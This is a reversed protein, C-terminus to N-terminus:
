GNRISKISYINNLLLDDSDIIIIYEGKSELIGQNRSYFAKKNVDNKLYIIRKDKEILDKIILSTNDTSADDVFIIEIDKLEQKYISAYIFKINEEQNYVSIIVSVKPIERKILDNKNDFSIEIQNFEKIEEKVKDVDLFTENNWYLKENTYNGKNDRISGTKYKNKELELNGIKEISKYPPKHYFILHITFYIMLFIIILIFIKSWDLYNNKKIFKNGNKILEYKNKM